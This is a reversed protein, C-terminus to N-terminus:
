GSARESVRMTGTMSASFDIRRLDMHCTKGSSAAVNGVNKRAQLQMNFLRSRRLPQLKRKVVHRPFVTHQSQVVVRYRATFAPKALKALSSTASACSSKFMWATVTPLTNDVCDCILTTRSACVAYDSSM